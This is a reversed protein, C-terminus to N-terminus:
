TEKVEYESLLGYLETEQEDSLKNLEKIIRDDSYSEKVHEVGLLNFVTVVDTVKYKRCRLIIYRM